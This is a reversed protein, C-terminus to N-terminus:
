NIAIGVLDVGDWCCLKTLEATVNDYKYLICPSQWNVNLEIFAYYQNGNTIIELQWIDHHITDAAAKMIEIMITDAETINGNSDILITAELTNVIKNNVISSHFNGNVSTYIALDDPNFAETEAYNGDNYITVYEYDATDSKEEQIIVKLIPVADQSSVDGCATLMTAMMIFTLFTSLKRM